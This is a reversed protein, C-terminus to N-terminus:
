GFPYVKQGTPDDYLTIAYVRCARAASFIDRASDGEPDKVMCKGRDDLEFTAPAKERCLGDGVCAEQNVVIKYKIM